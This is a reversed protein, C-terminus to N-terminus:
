KNITCDYIIFYTSYKYYGDQDGFDELNDVDSMGSGESMEDESINSDTDQDELGGNAHNLPAAAENPAEEGIVRVAGTGVRSELGNDWRILILNQSGVKLRSSILGQLGQIAGSKGEVRVGVGFKM